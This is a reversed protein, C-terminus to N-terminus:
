AALVTRFRFSTGGMHRIRWFGPCGRGTREEYRFPYLTPRSGGSTIGDTVLKHSKRADLLGLTM